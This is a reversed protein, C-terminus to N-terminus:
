SATSNHLHGKSEQVLAQDWSLMQGLGLSGLSQGQGHVLGQWHQLGWVLPVQGQQWHKRLLGQEMQVLKQELWHLQVLQHELRQARMLLRPLQQVLKQGLNQLM